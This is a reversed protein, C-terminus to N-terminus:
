LRCDKVWRGAGKEDLSALLERASQISVDEQLRSAPLRGARIDALIGQLLTHVLCYLAPATDVLLRQFERYQSWEETLTHHADVKNDFVRSRLKGAM